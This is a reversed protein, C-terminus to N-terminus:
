AFIRIYVNVNEKQEQMHDKDYVIMFKDIWLLIFASYM